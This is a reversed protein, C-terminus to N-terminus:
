IYEKILRIFNSSNFLRLIDLFIVWNLSPTLQLCNVSEVSNWLDHSMSFFKNMHTVENKIPFVPTIM